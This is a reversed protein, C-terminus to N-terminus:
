LGVGARTFVGTVEEDTFWEGVEKALDGAFQREYMAIQHRMSDYDDVSLLVATAKGYNSLIVPGKPLKDLVSQYGRQLQSVPEVQTIGM